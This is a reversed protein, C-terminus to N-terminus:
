AGENKWLTKPITIAAGVDHAVSFAIGDSDFHSKMRVKPMNRGEPLVRVVGPWASPDSGLFWSTGTMRPDSLVEVIEDDGPSADKVIKGASIREAEPVLM